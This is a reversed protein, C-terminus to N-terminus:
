LPGRDQAGWVSQELGVQPRGQVEGVYQPAGAGGVPRRESTVWFGYIMDCMCVKVRTGKCPKTKRRRM